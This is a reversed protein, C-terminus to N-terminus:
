KKRKNSRYILFGVVLLAIVILIIVLFQNSKIGELPTQSIGGGDVLSRIEVNASNGEISNLVVLFDDVGDGNLDGIWEEGVYLTKTQPTSSVTVTVSTNTISDITLSHQSGELEFNLKGNVKMSKSYGNKLDSSSVTIPTEEASTTSLGPSTQTSSNATSSNGGSSGGGSSSGGGTSQATCVGGSCLGSTCIANNDCTQGNAQKSVTFNKVIWPNGSTENCYGSFTFTEFTHGYVKLNITDGTNAGVSNLSYSGDSSITGSKLLTSSNYAGVTLGSVSIGDGTVTGKVWCPETSPDASVIGAFLLIFFLALVYIKNIELKM